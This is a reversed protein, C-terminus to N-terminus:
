AQRPGVRGLCEARKWPDGQQWRLGSGVRRRREAEAKGFSLPPRWRLSPRERFLGHSFAQKRGSRLPRERPKLLGSAGRAQQGGAEGCGGRVGGGPSHSASPGLPVPFAM